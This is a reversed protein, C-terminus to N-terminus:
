HRFTTCRQSVVTVHTITNTDWTASGVDSFEPKHLKVQMVRQSEELTAVIQNLLDTVQKKETAIRIDAWRLAVGCNKNVKNLFSPILYKYWKLFIELLYPPTTATIERPHIIVAREFGQYCRKRFDELM